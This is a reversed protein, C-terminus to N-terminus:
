IIFPLMRSVLKILMKNSVVQLSCPSLHRQGQFALRYKRGSSIKDEVLQTRGGLDSTHRNLDLHLYKHSSRSDINQEYATRENEVPSGSGRVRSSQRGVM